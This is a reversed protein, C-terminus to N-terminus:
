PFSRIYLVLDVNLTWICGVPRRSSAWAAGVGRLLCQSVQGRLEEETCARSTTATAARRVIAPMMKQQMRRVGGPLMESRDLDSPLLVLHREQAQRQKTQPRHQTPLRRHDTVYAMSTRMLDYQDCGRLHSLDLWSVTGMLSSSVPECNM